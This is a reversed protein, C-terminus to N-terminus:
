TPTQRTLTRAKIKHTGNQDVYIQKTYVTNTENDTDGSDLKTKIKPLCANSPTITEKTINDLLKIEM